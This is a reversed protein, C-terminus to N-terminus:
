FGMHAFVKIVLDSVEDCDDGSPWDDDGRYEEGGFFYFGLEGFFSSESRRQM